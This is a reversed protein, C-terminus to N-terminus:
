HSAEEQRFDYFLQELRKDSYTRADDPLWELFREAQDADEFLPGFAWDTTNCYLCANREGELIQVSMIQGGNAHRKIETPM